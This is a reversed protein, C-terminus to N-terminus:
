SSPAVDQYRVLEIDCNKIEQYLTKDVLADMELKRRDSQLWLKMQPSPAHDNDDVPMSPHTLIETVGPKLSHCVYRLNHVDMRNSHLIGFIYDTMGLGDAKKRNTKAFSSLLYKKLINGNIWPLLDYGPYWGKAPFLFREDSLRVMRCRYKKSLAVAIEFLPPIMHIHHHGDVHDIHVGDSQLKAFQADFEQYVQELFAKDRKAKILIKIFSHHFHGEENTLLPVRDRPQISHGETLSLHLGVGLNPNPRVVNDLADEYADMNVIM